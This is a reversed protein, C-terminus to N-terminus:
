SRDVLDEFEHENREAQRVYLVAGAVLGPYVLVGLLLWPLPLGAVHVRRAQPVFAFLLPLAGLLVGFVACVRIALHLQVRMLSRIMLDGLQTQEHLDRRGGAGPSLREARGASRQVRVRGPEQRSM